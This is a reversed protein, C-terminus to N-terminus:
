LFAGVDDRLLVSNEKTTSHRVDKFIRVFACTVQSFIYQKFAADKYRRKLPFCHTDFINVCAETRYFFLLLFTAKKVTIVGICLLWMNM